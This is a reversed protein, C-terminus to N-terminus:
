CALAARPVRAPPALEGCLFRRLTEARRLKGSSTRPLTGPELIHVAHPRVGTREIVAARIQAILAPDDASRTGRSREGLILLEEGEGGSPVYGLAVAGGLRVGAIGELCEEFEECTHNAGRIIV